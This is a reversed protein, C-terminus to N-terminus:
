FWRQQDEQMEDLINGNVLHETVIQEAKAKDIATYIVRDPMISVAPGRDCFRLCGGARVEVKETLGEERLKKEFVELLGAADCALCGVAGLTKPRPSQCVLLIRKSSKPEKM